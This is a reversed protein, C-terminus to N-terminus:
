NLISKITIGRKSALDLRRCSDLSDEHFLIVMALFASVLGSQIIMNVSPFIALLTLNIVSLTVILRKLTRMIKVM